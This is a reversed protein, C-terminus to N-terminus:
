ATESEGIRKIALRPIAGLRLALAEVEQSFTDTESYPERRGMAWNLRAKSWTEAKASDLQTKDISM